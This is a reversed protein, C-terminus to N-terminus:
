PAYGAKYLDVAALPRDLRTGALVAIVDAKHISDEKTLFRGVNLAGYVVLALTILGVILLTRFFTRRPSSGPASL